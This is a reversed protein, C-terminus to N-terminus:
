FKFFPGRITARADLRGRIVYPLKSWAGSSRGWPRLCQLLGPLDRGGALLTWGWFFPSRLRPLHDLIAVTENYAANYTADLSPKGRQDDDFRTAPYHDVCVAPDYLLKWGRRRVSLSFALDNHVQAGTGRLRYDFLLGEIASSRFSMNAGKLFDVFRPPGEGRHHHGIKRGYWQLVGVRRKKSENEAGYVADRGGVGGVNPYAEFYRSITELWDPKPAADDDTIAVIDGCVSALGRNLAAVQGPISVSVPTLNFENPDLGRLFTLTDEDTDRYVVVVQDPKRTQARLARLCRALDDTRKYTPVIVSLRTAIHGEMKTAKTATSKVNTHEIQEAEPM